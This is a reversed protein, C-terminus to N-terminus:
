EPSKNGDTNVRYQILGNPGPNGNPKEGKRYYFRTSNKTTAEVIFGMLSLWKFNRVTNKCVGVMTRYPALRRWENVMTVSARIFPRWNRPDREFGTSFFWPILVITEGQVQQAVGFLGLLRRTKPDLVVYAEESGILADMLVQATTFGLDKRLSNADVMEQSEVSLNMLAVRPLHKGYEFQEITFTPRM